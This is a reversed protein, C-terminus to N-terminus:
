VLTREISEAYILFSKMGIGLAGTIGYLVAVSVVCPSESNNAEIRSLYSLSIGAMQALEKRSLGQQKRLESIAQGLSRITRRFKDNNEWDRKHRM